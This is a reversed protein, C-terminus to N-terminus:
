KAILDYDITKFKITNSVQKLEKDGRLSYFNPTIEMFYVYDVSEFKVKTKTHRFINEGKFSYFECNPEMFDIMYNIAIYM